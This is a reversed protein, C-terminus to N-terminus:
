NKHDDIPQNRNFDGGSDLLFYDRPLARVLIKTLKDDVTFNGRTGAIGGV